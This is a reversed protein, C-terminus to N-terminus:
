VWSTGAIAPLPLPKSNTEGYGYWDADQWAFDQPGYFTVYPKIATLVLGLATTGMELEDATGIRITIQHKAQHSNYRAVVRTTYNEAFDGVTVRRQLSERSTFREVDRWM